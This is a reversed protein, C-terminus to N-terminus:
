AHTFWEASRFYWARLRRNNVNVKGAGDALFSPIRVHFAFSPTLTYNISILRVEFFLNEDTRSAPSLPFVRLRTAGEGGGVYSLSRQTHTLTERLQSCFIALVFIQSALQAGRRIYHSCFNLSSSSLFLRVRRLYHVWKASTRKAGARVLLALSRRHRRRVVADAGM